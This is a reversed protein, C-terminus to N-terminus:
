RAFTHWGFWMWFIVLAARGATTARITALVRGAPTSFAAGLRGAIELGVACAALAGWIVLSILRM